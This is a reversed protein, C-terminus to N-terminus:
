PGGMDKSAKAMLSFFVSFFTKDVTQQWQPPNHTFADWSQHQQYHESLIGSLVGLVERDIGNLANSYMSKSSFYSLSIFSGTLILMISANILFLKHGLKIRM